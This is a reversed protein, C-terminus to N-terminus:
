IIDKNQTCFKEHLSYQSGVRSTAVLNMELQSCTKSTDVLVKYFLYSSSRYPFTTMSLKALKREIKGFWVFHVHRRPIHFLVYFLYSSSRYTFSTM